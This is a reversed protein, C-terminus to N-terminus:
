TYSGSYSGCSGLCMGVCRLHVSVLSACGGFLGVVPHYTTIVGPSLCLLDARSKRTKSQKFSLYGNARVSAIHM